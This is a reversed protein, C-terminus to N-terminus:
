SSSKVRILDDSDEQKLNCLRKFSSLLYIRGVNTRLDFSKNGVKLLKSCLFTQLYKTYFSLCTYLSYSIKSARKATSHKSICKAKIAACLFNRQCSFIVWSQYPQAEPSYMYIFTTQAKQLLNNLGFM